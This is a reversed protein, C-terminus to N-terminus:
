QRFGREREPKELVIEQFASCRLTMIRRYVRHEEVGRGRYSYSYDPAQAQRLCAVVERTDLPSSNPLWHFDM